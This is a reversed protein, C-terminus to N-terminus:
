KNVTLKITVTYAQRGKYKSHIKYLKNKASSKEVQKASDDLMTSSAICIKASITIQFQLTLIVRFFASARLRYGM